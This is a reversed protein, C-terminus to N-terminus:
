NTILDPFHVAFISIDVLLDSFQTEFIYIQSIKENTM